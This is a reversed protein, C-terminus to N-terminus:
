RELSWVLVAPLGVYAQATAEPIRGFARRLHAVDAARLRPEVCDLVRLGAARFARLYDGHGHAHERIFGRRGDADTFAAHWGLAVLTPHTVTIVLRGGPALVRALEGVADGISPLHALALACVAVDFRGDPAPLARVDGEAFTAAPAAVRARALMEPTLDVGETDHGLASLRATHRGTGCAADLARTPPPRNFGDLLSWVVPQELAVIPNDPEDYRDAWRGYGSRPDAEAVAEGGAAPEDLLERIERLREDADGDHRHRLLALGEIGILLEAPRM